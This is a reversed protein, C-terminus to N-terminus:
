TSYRLTIAEDMWRSQVATLGEIELYELLMFYTMFGTEIITEYWLDGKKDRDFEERDPRKDAHKFAGETYTYDYMMLHGRFCEVLLNNLTEKPIFQM